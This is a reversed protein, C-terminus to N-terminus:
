GGSVGNFSPLTAPQTCAGSGLVTVQLDVASGPPLTVPVSAVSSPALTVNQAPVVGGAVTITCAAPSSFQLEIAHTGPTYFLLVDGATAYLQQSTVSGKVVVPNFGWAGLAIVNDHAGTNSLLFRDDRAVESSPASTMPLDVEVVAYPRLRGDFYRTPSRGSDYNRILFPFNVRPLDRFRYEMWLTDFVQTGLVMADSGEPGGHQAVWNHAADYEAGNYFTPSQPSATESLLPEVTRNGAIVMALGTAVAGSAVTVALPRTAGWAWLRHSLEAYGSASALVVLPLTIEVARGQGYPFYHVTSLVLISGVVSAM